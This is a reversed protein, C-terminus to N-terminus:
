HLETSLLTHSNQSLPPCLDVLLFVGAPCLRKQVGGQCTVSWRDEDMVPSAEWQGGVGGGSSREGAGSGPLLMGMHGCRPPRPTHGGVAGTRSCDGEEGLTFKEIQMSLPRGSEVRLVGEVWYLLLMRFRVDSCPAGKSM